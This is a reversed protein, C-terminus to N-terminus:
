KAKEALWEFEKWLHEEQARRELIRPQAITWSKLIAQRTPHIWIDQLRADQQAVIAASNFCQSVRDAAQKWEEQWKNIPLSSIKDTSELEFLLRRSQRIEEAQVWSIVTAITQLLTARTQDRTAKVQLSLQWVALPLLVLGVITEIIQALWSWWEM